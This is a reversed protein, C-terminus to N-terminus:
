SKSYFRYGSSLNVYQNNSGPQGDYSPFACALINNNNKDTTKKGNDETPRIVYVKNDKIAFTLIGKNANDLAADANGLTTCKYPEETLRSLDIEKLETNKRGKKWNEYSDATYKGDDGKKVYRPIECNMAYSVDWLFTQAVKLDVTAGSSDYIYEDGNYKPYSGSTQYRKAISYLLSDTANERNSETAVGNGLYFQDLVAAYMTASRGNAILNKTNNSKNVGADDVEFYIEHDSGTSTLASIPVNLNNPYLDSFRLSDELPLEVGIVRVKSKATFSFTDSQTVNFLNQGDITLIVTAIRQRNSMKKYAEGNDAIGVWSSQVNSQGSVTVGDYNKEINKKNEKFLYDYVEEAKKINLTTKSNSDMGYGGGSGDDAKKIEVIGTDASLAVGEAIADTKTQVSAIARYWMGSEICYIMM